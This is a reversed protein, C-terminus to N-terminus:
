ARLCEMHFEDADVSLTGFRILDGIEYPTASFRRITVMPGDVAVPPLVVTMRSGDPLRAELVSEGAKLRGGVSSVLADIATMLQNEDEFRRDTLRIRGGREVESAEP